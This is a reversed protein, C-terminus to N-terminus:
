VADTLFMSLTVVGTLVGNKNHNNHVKDFVNQLIKPVIGSGCYLVNKQDSWGPLAM